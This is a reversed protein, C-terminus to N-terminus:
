RTAVSPIVIQSMLKLPMKWQDASNYNGALIIVVMRLSPIVILRQGGNGFAAYWPKGNAVLSGLWWQYGYRLGGEVPARPKFSTALWGAPVIRRGNWQGRDLVMQGIRALDRPRLRLGSSAAAHNDSGLVWEFSDIGLPEFLRRRAFDELRQATGREILHGLLATAGGCYVWRDGPRGTMPRSLIFAYRDTSAEMQHEGNKEDTYTLDESWEIGMRMSLVHGITIRRRRPNGDDYAPFQDMLRATASSGAKM